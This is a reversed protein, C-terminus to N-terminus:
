VYITEFDGDQTAVIYKGGIWPEVSHIVMKPIICFDWKKYVTVVWDINLLLEGDLMYLYDDSRHYHKELSFGPADRYIVAGDFHLKEIFYDVCLGIDFNYTSLTTHIETESPIFSM